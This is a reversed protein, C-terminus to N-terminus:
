RNHALLRKPRYSLVFEFMLGYQDIVVGSKAMAIM